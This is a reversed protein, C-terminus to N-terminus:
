LAHAVSKGCVIARALDSRAREFSEGISSRV